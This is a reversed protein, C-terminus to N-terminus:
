RASVRSWRGHRRVIGAGLGALSLWAEIALIPMPRWMHAWLSLTALLILAALSFVMAAAAESWRGLRPWSSVIARGPVYFTFVLALLIRPVGQRGAYILILLGIVTLVATLDLVDGM